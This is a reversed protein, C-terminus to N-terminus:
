LCIILLTVTRVFNEQPKPRRTGLIHIQAPTPALNCSLLLARIHLAPVWTKFAPLIGVQTEVKGFRWSRWSGIGPLLREGLVEVGALEGCMLCYVVTLLERTRRALM